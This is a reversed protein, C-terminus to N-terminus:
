SKESFEKLRKLGLDNTNKMESKLDFLYSFIYDPFSMDLDFELNVNTSSGQEDLTYNFTPHAIFPKSINCKVNVAKNPQLGIIEQYGESEEAVGTWHFKAGLSGDPGTVNNQQKPDTVLFPSWNPYLELYRINNYVTEAPANIKQTSTINIKKHGSAMVSLVLIGLVFVGLISGIIKIAKKM